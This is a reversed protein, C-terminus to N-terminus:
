CVWCARPICTCLCATGRPVVAARAQVVKASCWTVDHYMYSNDIVIQPPCAAPPDRSFTPMCTCATAAPKWALAARGTTHTRSAARHRGKPTPKVKSWQGARRASLRWKATVWHTGAAPSVLSSLRLGAVEQM